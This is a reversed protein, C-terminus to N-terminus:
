TFCCRNVATLIDEVELGWANPEFDPRLGNGSFENSLVDELEMVDDRRLLAGEDLMWLLEPAESQLIKRLTEAQAGSLDLAERLSGGEPNLEAVREFEDGM